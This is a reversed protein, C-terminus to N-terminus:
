PRAASAGVVPYDTEVDSRPIVKWTRALFVAEGRSSPNWHLEGDRVSKLQRVLRTLREQNERQM